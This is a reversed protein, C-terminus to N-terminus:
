MHHQICCQICHQISYRLITRLVTSYYTMHEIIDYSKAQLITYWAMHLMAIHVNQHQTTLDQCQQRQDYTTYSM